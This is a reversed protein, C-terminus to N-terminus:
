GSANAGAATRRAQSCIGVVQQSVSRHAACICSVPGVLQQAQFPRPHIQRTSQEEQFPPVGLPPTPPTYRRVEYVLPSLEITWM